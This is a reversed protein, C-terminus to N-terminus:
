GHGGFYIGSVTVKQRLFFDQAMNQPSLYYELQGLLYWRTPDLPFSLASLPMPLPPANPPPPPPVPYTEYGTPIYTALPPRPPAYYGSAADSPASLPQFQPPPTITFPPQRQQQPQYMGRGGRPHYGRGGYGGNSGRGRRGSYSGREYGHYGSGYSGRRPRGNYEREREQERQRERQEREMDLWERDVRERDRDREFREEPPVTPGYGPVGHGFGYGYDKVELGNTVGASADTTLLPIASRQVPFPAAMPLANLPSVLQSKPQQNVLSTQIRPQSLGVLRHAPVQEGIQLSETLLPSSPVPESPVNAELTGNDVQSSGISGFEWKVGIETRTLDIVTREIPSDDDFKEENETGLATTGISSAAADSKSSTTGTRKRGKNTRSRSPGHEGPCLGVSFTKSKKEASVTDPSNPEMTESNADQSTPSPGKSSGPLGISGFVVPQGRTDHVDSSVNLLGESPPQTGSIGTARSSAPTAPTAAPQQSQDLQHPFPPLSSTYAPHQHDADFHTYPRGQELIRPPPYLPYTPMSTPAHVLSAPNHPIYGSADPMVLPGPSPPRMSHREHNQPFVSPQLSIPVEAMTYSTATGAQDPAPAYVFPPYGPVANERAGPNGPPQPPGSVVSPASTIVNIGGMPDESSLRKGRGGHRPSSQASGTRSHIQSQSVSHSMSNRGSHSRSPGQASASGSSQNNRSHNGQKPGTHNQQWQSRSHSQRTSVNLADAAAQLEEAPIPVWKTKEAKFIDSTSCV